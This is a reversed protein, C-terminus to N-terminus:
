FEYRAGVAGGSNNLLSAEQTLTLGTTLAINGSSGSVFRIDGAAGSANLDTVAQRLSGAGSDATNGVDYTQAPSSASWVLLVALALVAAPRRPIAAFLSFFFRRRRVKSVHSSVAARV